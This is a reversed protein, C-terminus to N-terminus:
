DCVVELIKKAIELQQYKIKDVIQEPRLKEFEGDPAACWRHLKRGAGAQEGRWKHPGGLLRGYGGYLYGDGGDFGKDCGRTVRTRVIKYERKEYRELNTIEM